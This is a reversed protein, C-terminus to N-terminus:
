EWPDVDRCVRKWTCNGRALFEMINPMLWVMIIAMDMTMMVAKTPTGPSPLSTQNENLSTLGPSPSSLPM